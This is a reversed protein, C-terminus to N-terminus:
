REDKAHLFRPLLSAILLPWLIWHVVLVFIVYSQLQPVPELHSDLDLMGIISYDRTAM